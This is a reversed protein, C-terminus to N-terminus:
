GRWWPRWGTTSSTSAAPTRTCRTPHPGGEGARSAPAGDARGRRAPAARAARAPATVTVILDYRDERGAEFLTPAEHVLLPSGAALQQERWVQFREEILPLLLGELWEREGPESFVRAAIQARDVGGAADLVAPGFREAVAARVDDRLYLERVVQDSSMTAAGHRAFAALAESKGSGIGGTLGVVLAM